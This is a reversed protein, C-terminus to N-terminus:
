ASSRTARSSCRSTRPPTRRRARTRSCTPTTPASSSRRATSRWSSPSTSTSAAATTASARSLGRRVQQHARLGPGRARAPERLERLRDARHSRGPPRARPRARDRTRSRVRRDDHQRSVHASWPRPRAITAPKRGGARPSRRGREGHRGHAGYARRRAATASDPRRPHRPRRLGKGPPERAADMRRSAGDGGDGPGRLAAARSHRRFQGAIRRAEDASRSVIAAVIADPPCARRM